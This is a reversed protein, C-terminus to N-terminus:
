YYPKIKYRYVILSTIIWLIPIYLLSYIGINDSLKQCLLVFIINLVISIITSYNKDYRPNFYGIYIIFIISILPFFSTLIYFTFFYEKTTSNKLEQWYVVIDNLTNINQGQKIKNRIIMKEFNVQNVTDKIKTVKGNKLSLTLSTRENNTVANKAIIFTDDKKTQQFLVIDKYLGDKEENVYILWKGFEQGYESAKINFQAEIRKEKLFTKKMYNAKPILALSIILMLVTSLLLSPLILKVLKIPNLGFSTIVILEYESSLKALSLSLSIFITIPLTYFLITPVSYSYLELLELFNIQIISTLSAIKVLFVISTITYLTLFIPFFIESYTTLLYKKLLKNM